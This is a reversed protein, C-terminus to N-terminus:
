RGGLGAASVRLAAAGHFQKDVLTAMDDMEPLSRYEGNMMM